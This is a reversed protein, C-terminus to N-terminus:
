VGAGYWSCELKVRMCTTQLGLHYVLTVGDCSVQSCVRCRYTRSTTPPKNDPYKNTSPLTIDDMVLGQGGPESTELSQILKNMVDSPLMSKLSASLHHSSAAFMIDGPAQTVQIGTCACKVQM